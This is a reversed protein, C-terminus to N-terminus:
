GNRPQEPGSRARRGIPGSWTAWVRLRQLVSPTRGPRAEAILRTYTEAVHRIDYRASAEVAREGLSVRLDADALLTVLAAGLETDDVQVGGGRALVECAGPNPTAVVPTGSALAEAYPVGFGEYTSPLCFVWAQRYREALEADSLIGLVEVGPATPADSCVMWLQADPIAPRVEQDFVKMLLKGRKRREYTGVFLVTPQAARREGSPHFVQTDIGNPIVRDCWPYRRISNQSVGVVIPTRLASLAETLGLFLM